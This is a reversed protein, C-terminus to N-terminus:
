VYLQSSGYDSMRSTAKPSWGFNSTRLVLSADTNLQYIISDNRTFTLHGSSYLAFDINFTGAVSDCRAELVKPEWISQGVLSSCLFLLSISFTLNKKM